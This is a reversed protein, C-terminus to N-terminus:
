SRIRKNGGIGDFDLNRYVDIVELRFRFIGTGSLPPKRSGGEPTRSGPIIANSAWARSGLAPFAM